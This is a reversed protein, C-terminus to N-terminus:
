KKKGATKTTKEAAPKEAAPKAAGTKAAAPKAKAAGKPAAPAPTGATTGSKERDALVMLIRAITRRVERARTTRNVTEASGHFRLGFQEKRLDALKTKLEASDQGRIETILKKM